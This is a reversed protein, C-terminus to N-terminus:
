FYRPLTVRYRVCGDLGNHEDPKYDVARRFMYPLLKLLNVQLGSHVRYFRLADDTMVVRFAKADTLKGDGDTSTYIRAEYTDRVATPQMYGMVTGPMVARDPARLVVMRYCSVQGVDMGGNDVREVAILGGTAVLKWVDEVPSSAREALREEVDDSMYGDLVESSYPLRDIWRQPAAASVGSSPCGILLTLWLAIITFKMPM